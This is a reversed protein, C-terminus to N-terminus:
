DNQPIDYSALFLLHTQTYKSEKVRIRHQHNKKNKIGPTSSLAKYKSPLYEAVQAMGGARKPM